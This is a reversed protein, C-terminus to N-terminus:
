DTREIVIGTLKVYHASAGSRLRVVIDVKRGPDWKPGDRVVVEIRGTAANGAERRIETPASEWVEPGYVWVRDVSVVEPFARGDEVGVGISGILPKGGPPSIPMFDRWLLTAFGSWGAPAIRYWRGDIEVREGPPPGPSALPINARSGIHDIRAGQGDTVFVLAREHIRPGPAGPPMYNDFDGDFYCFIVRHDPQLGSWRSVTPRPGDPGFRTMEWYTAASATTPLAAVLTLTRSYAQIVPTGESECKQAEPDQTAAPSATAPMSSPATSTCTTAALLLLAAAHSLRLSAVDGVLAARRRDARDGHGLSALCRPTGERDCLAGTVM